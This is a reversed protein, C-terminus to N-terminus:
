SPEFLATLVKFIVHSSKLGTFICRPDWLKKNNFTAATFKKALTILLMKFVDLDRGTVMKTRTPFNLRPASGGLPVTLRLQRATCAYTVRLARLLSLPLHVAITGQQVFVRAKAIADVLVIITTALLQLNVQFHLKVHNASKIQEM